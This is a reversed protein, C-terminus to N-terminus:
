RGNSAQRQLEIDETVTRESRFRKPSKASKTKRNSLSLASNSSTDIQITPKEPQIHVVDLAHQQDIVERCAILPSDYKISPPLLNPDMRVKKALNKKIEDNRAEQTM